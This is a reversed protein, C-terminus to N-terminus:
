EHPARLSYGVGRVTQVLRSGNVELKKRLYSVYTEVLSADGEHEYHWVHELIQQKSVVRERNIMLYRLLKYETPSLEVVASDRTVRHADDDLVLDGYRYVSPEAQPGASRRLVAQIRLVVEELRFPKTVYDDGGGGLGATLDDAGDRATLFIVPTTDGEARLRRCVEFGDLGPMM